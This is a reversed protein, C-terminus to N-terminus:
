PESLGPLGIAGSRRLGALRDHGIQPEPFDVGCQGPNDQEFLTPEEMQLGRHGPAPDTM